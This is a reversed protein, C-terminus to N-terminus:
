PENSIHPMHFLQLILSAGSQPGDQSGQVRVRAMNFQKAMSLLTGDTATDSHILLTYGQEDWHIEAKM